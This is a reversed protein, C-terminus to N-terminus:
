CSSPEKQTNHQSSYPSISFPPISWCSFVYLTWIRLKEQNLWPSKIYMNEFTVSVFSIKHVHKWRIAQTKRFLAEVEDNLIQLFFSFHWKWVSPVNTNSSLAAELGHKWFAEWSLSKSQNTKLVYYLKLLKQFLLFITNELLWFM